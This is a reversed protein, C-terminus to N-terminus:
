EECIGCMCFPEPHKERYNQPTWCTEAGITPTTADVINECFFEDLNVTMGIGGDYIVMTKNMGCIYIEPFECMPCYCPDCLEPKACEIKHIFYFGMIFIGIVALVIWPSINNESM